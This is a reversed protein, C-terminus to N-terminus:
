VMNHITAYPLEVYMYCYQYQNGSFLYLNTKFYNLLKNHKRKAELIAINSIPQLYVLSLVLRITDTLIFSINIWLNVFLDHIKQIMMSVRM